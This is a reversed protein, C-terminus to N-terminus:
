RTGEKEKRLSELDEDRVRWVEVDLMSKLM